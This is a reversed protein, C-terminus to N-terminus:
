RLHRVPDLSEAGLQANLFFGHLVRIGCGPDQEACVLLHQQVLMEVAQHEARQEEHALDM